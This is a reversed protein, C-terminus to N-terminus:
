RHSALRFVMGIIRTNIARLMQVFPLQRGDFSDTAPLILNPKSHQAVRLAPIVFRLIRDMRYVRAIIDIKHNMPAIHGIPTHTGLKLTLAIHQQLEIDRKNRQQTIVVAQGGAIQDIPLNKTIRMKGKRGAIHSEHRNIGIHQLEARHIGHGIKVKHFSLSCVVRRISPAGNGQHVCWRAGILEKTCLGIPQM